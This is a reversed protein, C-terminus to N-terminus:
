SGSRPARQRRVASTRGLSGPAAVRLPGCASAPLPFGFARDRRRLFRRVARRLAGRTGILLARSLPRHQAARRAAGRAQKEPSPFTGLGPRMRAAPVISCMGMVVLSMVCCAAPGSSGPSASNARRKGGPWGIWLSMRAAILREYLSMKENQHRHSRGAQRRLPHQLPLGDCQQSRNLGSSGSSTCSAANGHELAPVFAEAEVLQPRAIGVFERGPVVPLRAELLAGARRALAHRPFRRGGVRSQAPRSSIRSSGVPRRSDRLRILPAYDAM